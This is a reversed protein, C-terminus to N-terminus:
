EEIEALLSEILNIHSNVEVFLTYNKKEYYDRRIKLQALVEEWAKLSRIATEFANITDEGTFIEKFVELTKIQETM